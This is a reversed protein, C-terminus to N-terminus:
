IVPLIVSGCVLWECIAESISAFDVATRGKSDPVDTRAGADLLLKCIKGHEQFASCQCGCCPSCHELAVTDGAVGPLESLIERGHTHTHTHVYRAHLPTWGTGANQANVSAGKGLLLMLM